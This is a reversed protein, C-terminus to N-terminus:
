EDSPELPAVPAPKRKIPCPCKGSIVNFVYDEPNVSQLTEATDTKYFYNLSVEIVGNVRKVPETFPLGIEIEAGETLPSLNYTLGGYTITDGQVEPPTSEEGFSINSCLLNIKM